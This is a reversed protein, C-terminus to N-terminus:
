GWFCGHKDEEILEIFEVLSKVNSQPKYVHWKADSRWWFVSWLDKKTIYTTKAIKSEMKIDQDDYLPRIEFIVISQKEIRYSLDVRSRMEEPPRKWDIYNEMIEIVELTKNLDLSM